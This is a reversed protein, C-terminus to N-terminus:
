SIVTPNGSITHSGVTSEVKSGATSEVVNGVTTRTVNGGITEILNGSVIRTVNGNVTEDLSDCTVSIEPFSVGLSTTGNISATGDENFVLSVEGSGQVRITAKDVLIEKFGSSSNDAVLISWKNNNFLSTTSATPSSSVSTTEGSTTIQEYYRVSGDNDVQRKYVRDDAEPLDEDVIEGKTFEAAAVDGIAEWYEPTDDVSSQRTHYWAHYQYIRGRVNDQVKKAAESFQQYNRSVVRVLDDIKTILIQAMSSAKSLISGSNTVAFVSGGKSISFDGPIQDEPKSNGASSSSGLMSANYRRYFYENNLEQVPGIYQIDTRSFAPIQLSKEICANGKADFKVRVRERPVPSFTMASRGTGGFPQSWSVNSLMRGDFCIVKCVQRQMDIATVMGDIQYNTPAGPIKGIM